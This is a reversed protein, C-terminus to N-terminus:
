RKKKKSAVKPKKAPVKVPNVTTSDEERDDGRLNMREYYPRLYNAVHPAHYIRQNFVNGTVIIVATDQYVRQFISNNGHWWGNHYVIKNGNPWVKLRWGLGYYETTDRYHTDRQRPKWAMEYTASDLLIHSRIADDYQMLDRCTTYVNKDGYIADLYDFNYISKNAKFSPTYRATDKISFIFTHKMGAPKLIHEAVYDPFSQGSFKEVILALLVFNTNCYEFKSGVPRTLPPKKSIMFELVDDNTAIQKKNWGFKPFFYAYNQLGSIHSLLHGITIGQYPFGPFIQELSDELHIKGQQILQLVAHSTFTKSTSAVHFPTSDTIATQQGADSYGQYHEYLITGNKAVLMGGSFGASNLLTDLYYGISDGYAKIEEPPM